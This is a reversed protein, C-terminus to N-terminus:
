KLPKCYVYIYEKSHFHNFSLFMVPAFITLEAFIFWIEVRVDMICIPKNNILRKKLSPERQVVHCEYTGTDNITVDKVILSVDGDKMWRDLLDVRNKFSPHQEELVSGEDRYLLVYEDLDARRWEVVITNNNPARCPLTVDQGSEAKINKQESLPFLVSCLPSLDFYLQEGSCPPFVLFCLQLSHKERNDSIM